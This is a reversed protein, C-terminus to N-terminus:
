NMNFDIKKIVKCPNGAAFVGSPIDKTVVSGAGIITNDGITVGPLITVNSTIWVNSGIIVPKAIITSFDTYDHTSTIVTNHFSFGSNDGIIIPAYAVIFTDSLSVRKGVTLFSPASCHFNKCLYTTTPIGYIKCRIKKVLSFNRIVPLKNLKLLLCEIKSFSPIKSGKKHIFVDSISM